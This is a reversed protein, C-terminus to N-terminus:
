RRGRVKGAWKGSYWGGGNGSWPLTRADLQEQTEVGDPVWQEPHTGCGLMDCTGPGYHGALAKAVHPANIIKSLRKEEAPKLGGKALRRAAEAVTPEKETAPPLVVEVTVPVEIAPCTGNPCGGSPAFRKLPGAQVAPCIVLAICSAYLLTLFSRM